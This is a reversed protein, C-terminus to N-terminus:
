VVRFDIRLGHLLKGGRPWRKPPPLQNGQRPDRRTLIAAWSGAVGFRALEQLGSEGYSGHSRLQIEHMPCLASADAADRRVWPKKCFAALM